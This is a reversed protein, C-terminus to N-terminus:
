RMALLQKTRPPAFHQDLEALDEATLRLQQAAWNHRLHLANGAKPIAM